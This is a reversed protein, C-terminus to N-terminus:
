AFPFKLHAFHGDHEDYVVRAMEPHSEKVHVKLEEQVEFTSDCARCQFMM